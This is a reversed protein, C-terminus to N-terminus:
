KNNKQYDKGYKEKVALRIGETMPIGQANKLWNLILYAEEEIKVSAFNRKM